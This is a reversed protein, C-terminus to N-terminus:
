GTRFVPSKTNEAIYQGTELLVVFYCPTVKWLLSEFVHTDTATTVLSTPGMHKFITPFRTSSFAHAEVSSRERFISLSIVFLFSNKGRLFPLNTRIICNLPCFYPSFAVQNLLTVCTAHKCCCCCCSVRSDIVPFILYMKVFHYDKLIDSHGFQGM